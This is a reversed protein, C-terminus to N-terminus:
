ASHYELAQAIQTCLSEVGQGATEIVIDACSRYIPEREHYLRELREPDNLLPRDTCDGLRSKLEALPARLFVLLAGGNRLSAVNEARTVVGGGTAIVLNSTHELSRVADSELQRFGVEGLASFIKSISSGKSQETILLDIDVAAFGLREALMPALTSKGVGPMGILAIKNHTVFPRVSGAM